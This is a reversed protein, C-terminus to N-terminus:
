NTILLRKLGSTMDYITVSIFPNLRHKEVEQPLRMFLSAEAHTNTVETCVAVNQSTDMSVDHLTGRLM